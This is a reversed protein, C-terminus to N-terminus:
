QFRIAKIPTIKSVFMAPLLLVMYCIIFSGVNIMLVDTWQLLIPVENLYYADQNLKFWGGYSQSLCIGIGAVNGVIMGWLVLYSAIYVFINAISRNNAGMAKLLGIMNSREVILILLATAMNICAVVIMLIIIVWVNLDLLGLWDFLQPFLDRITHIEFNYPLYGLLESSVQDVDSYNKLGVEYGSVAYDSWQNLKQVQKMDVFAYLRDMEELGTNYIGCVKFKRVRPPDQAIYLLVNDGTKLKLRDALVKSLVIDTSYEDANLSLVAGTTLHQQLFRWDYSTDVGKLVVGSFEEKTKLIGAKIAFPQLHSVSNHGSLIKELVTDRYIPTTEFSNNMDLSTIQIHTSFGIIKSRIESQYGKVIAISIIMVAVSLAVAGTAIRVILRSSGSGKQLSLRRALIYSFSSGM